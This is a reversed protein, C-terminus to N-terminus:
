ETIFDSLIDKREQYFEAVAAVVDPDSSEDGEIVQSIRYRSFNSRAQIEAVDGHSHLQRILDLLKSPVKM